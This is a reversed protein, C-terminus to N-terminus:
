CGSGACCFGFMTTGTAVRCAYGAQGACDTGAMGQRCVRRCHNAIAGTTPNTVQVCTFGAQCDATGKATCDAGDGGAGPLSCDTAEPITATAFVQCGLGAACGSAGAALVPNCAVTCVKATVGTFTLLCHPLNQAGGPAAVQKCDSDVNCFQRCQLLSASEQTCLTGKVCDDAAPGCLQGNGKNGDTICAPVSTELTCKEGAGCGTQSVLNCPVTMDSPPVIKLDPPDTKLDPPVNVGTLDVGILDIGSFDIPIFPTALDPPDNVVSLDPGGGGGISADPDSNHGPQACAVTGCAVLVLLGVRGTSM